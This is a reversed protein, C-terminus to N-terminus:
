ICVHVFLVLKNRMSGRPKSNFGPGSLVFVFMYSTQFIDSTREIRYIAIDQRTKNTNECIQTLKLESIM